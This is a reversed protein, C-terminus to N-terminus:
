EYVTWTTFEDTIEVEYEEVMPDGNCDSALLDYYDPDLYFIRQDGPLVSEVGGLWDDGWEEAGSPSIQMFCIEMSTQNDLMLAVMGRGGVTITRESSVESVSEVPVADCDLLRVDYTGEDVGFTKSDGPEIVEDDDLFDEGWEDADEPSIQVYCIDYLSSNKITIELDGGGGGFGCALATSVLIALFLCIAKNKM